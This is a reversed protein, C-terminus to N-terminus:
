YLYNTGYNIARVKWIYERDSLKLRESNTLKLWQYNASHLHHYDDYTLMGWDCRDIFEPHHMLLRM